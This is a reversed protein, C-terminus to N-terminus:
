IPLPPPPLSLLFDTIPCCYDFQMRLSLCISIYSEGSGACLVIHCAVGVDSFSHLYLISQGASVIHPIMPCFRKRLDTTPLYILQINANQGGLRHRTSIMTDNCYGCM